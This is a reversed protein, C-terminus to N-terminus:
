GEGSEIIAKLAVVQAEAAEARVYERDARASWEQSIRNADEVGKKWRAVEQRLEAFSEMLDNWGDIHFTCCDPPGAAKLTEIDGTTLM